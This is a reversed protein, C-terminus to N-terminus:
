FVCIGSLVCLLIGGGIYLLPKLGSEVKKYEKEKIDKKELKKISEKSSEKNDTISEKKVSEKTNEINTTNKTKDKNKNIKTIKKSSGDKNKIEIIEKSSSEKFNEFQDSLKFYERQIEFLEKNKREITYERDIITQKLEKIETNKEEVYSKGFFSIFGLLALIIIFLYIRKNNQM